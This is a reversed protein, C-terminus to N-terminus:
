ALRLVRKLTVTLSTLVSSDRRAVTLALLGDIDGYRVSLTPDARVLLTEMRARRQRIAEPLPEGPQDIADHTADRDSVARVM